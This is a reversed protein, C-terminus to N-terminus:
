VNCRVATEGRDVGGLGEGVEERGWILEEETERKLPLPLNGLSIWQVHGLLIYPWVCVRM